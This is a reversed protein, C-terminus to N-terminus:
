SQKQNAKTKMEKKKPESTNERSESETKKKPATKSIVGSKAM